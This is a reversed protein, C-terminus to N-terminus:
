AGLQVAQRPPDSFTAEVSILPGITLTGANLVQQANGRRRDEAAAKTHATMWGLLPRLPVYEGFPVPRVKQYAGM